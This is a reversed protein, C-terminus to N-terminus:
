ARLARASGLLLEGALAGAALLLFTMWLEKGRRTDRLHSALANVSGLTSSGDGGAARLSDAPITALDSEIPSVNVATTAISRGGSEFDYFGPQIAPADAQARYATGEARVSAQSSYSEPGRVIVTAGPSSTLRASPAEGVRASGPGDAEAQAAYSVLGRVLPVFAGSYPLDGWDDSLSSLFVAVGPSTAVLPLGGTTQVVIEPRATLARSKMVGTLRSETLPAGVAVNLGNLVDHGPLRARLEYSGGSAAQEPGDLGLDIVGPFLRSGYYGPDSHPGLAVV